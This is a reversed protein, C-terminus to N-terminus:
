GGIQQEAQSVAQERRQIDATKNALAIQAVKIQDADSRNQEVQITINATAADNIAKQKAIADAQALILNADQIKIDLDKQDSAIQIRRANLQAALLTNENADLTNKNEQLGAANERDSIAAERKDLADSVSQAAARADEKMKSFTAIDADLQARAAAIIGAQQSISTQKDVLVQEQNSFDLLVSDRKAQKDKIESDLSASQALQQDIQQRLEIVQAEFEKQKAANLDNLEVTKLTIAATLSEIEIKLDEKQYNLDKVQTQYTEIDQQRNAALQEESIPTRDLGEDMRGSQEVM